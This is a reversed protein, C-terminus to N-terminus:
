RRQLSKNKSIEELRTMRDAVRVWLRLNNNPGDNDRPVILDKEWLRWNAKREKESLFGAKAKKAWDMYEGEWMFEGVHEIRTGTSARYELLYQTVSWKIHARVNERQEREKIFAKFMKKLDVPRTIELERIAEREPSLAVLRDFARKDNNCFKCLNQKDNFCTVLLFQDCSGRKRWADESDTDM